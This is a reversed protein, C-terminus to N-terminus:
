DGRTLQGVDRHLSEAAQSMRRASALESSAARSDAPERTLAVGSRRRARYGGGDLGPVVDAAHVPEHFRLQLAAVSRGAVDHGRRRELEGCRCRRPANQRRGCCANRSRLRRGRVRYAASLADTDHLPTWYVLGATHTLLHRITMTQRAARADLGKSPDLAVLPTRLEPLLDSVPQDLRLKGGEVRVMAALGTIMKTMSYIRCVSNEDFLADGDFALRGMKLYTLPSNRDAVAVAAGALKKAGVYDALLKQLAQWQHVPAPTQGRLLHVVGLPLSALMAVCQRRDM